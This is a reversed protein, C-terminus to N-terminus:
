NKIKEPFRYRNLVFLIAAVGLLSFLIFLGFELTIQPNEKSKFTGFIIIFIEMIIMLSAIKLSHLPYDKLNQKTKEGFEKMEKKSTPRWSFYMTILLPKTHYDTVAHTLDILGIFIVAYTVLIIVNKCPDSNWHDFIDHSIFFVIALILLYYFCIAFLYPLRFIIGELIEINLRKPSFEAEEMYGCRSCIGPIDTGTFIENGCKSCKWIRKEGVQVYYRETENKKEESKEEVDKPKEGVKKNPNNSVEKKTERLSEKKPEEKAKERKKHKAKEKKELKKKLKGEEFKELKGKQKKNENGM